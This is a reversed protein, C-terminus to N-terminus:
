IGNQKGSKLDAILLQKALKAILPQERLAMKDLADKIQIDGSIISYSGVPACGDQTIPQASDTYSLVVAPVKEVKFKKFPDPNVQWDAGSQNLRVIAERTQSMKDNIFGRMMVVAGFRKAQKAYNVLMDTPMSMSVFVILESVGHGKPTMQPLTARSKALTEFQQRSAKSVSDYSGKIEKAADMTATYSSGESNAKISRSTPAHIPKSDMNSMSQTIRAKQQNIADNNPLVVDQAVVRVSALWILLSLLTKKHM